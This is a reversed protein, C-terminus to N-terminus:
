SYVKGVLAVAQAFSLSSGLALAKSEWTGHSIGEGVM